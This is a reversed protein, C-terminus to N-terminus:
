KRMKAGGLKGGKAGGSGQLIASQFAYNNDNKDNFALLAYGVMRDILNSFSIGSEEFLYYAMSGPICNIETIYIEGSERDQMFDIRVVGKCDLAKFVDVAISQVRKTVEDSVPAPINRKLSAMGESAQKAGKLYKESFDLLEESTLPMELVSTTVDDGYGLVGCNLEIPKNLGKEILARRDYSFALAMAKELGARDHACSVGISSGLNAPKVFVPYPLSAEIRAITGDKDNKWQTRTAFEAPLVPLGYSKFMQHMIIKDMGIASGAVGVSTYPINALELMGQLTGDEGHMGHMVPLVVEVRYLVRSQDHAFLKKSSSHGYLIGSGATMDLWCRTLDPDDEHFPQFTRIDTLKQGTYWVGKQSIYIPTLDYKERDVAEMLQIASIISVEHECTRSGFIVALSLKKIM